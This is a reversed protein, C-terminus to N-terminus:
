ELFRFTSLIQNFIQEKEKFSQNEDYSWFTDIMLTSGSDIELFYWSRGGGRIETKIKLGNHDDIIVPIDAGFDKAFNEYNGEFRCLYVYMEDNLFKTAKEDAKGSPHHCTFNAEALNDAPYKIEYGYEENRYTKWNVTEDKTVEEPVKVELVKIEKKPIGFHQWAFIGGGAILISLFVVIWIKSFAHQNM